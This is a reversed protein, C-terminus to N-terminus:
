SQSSDPKEEIITDAVTLERFVDDLRGEEVKLEQLLLGKEKCM